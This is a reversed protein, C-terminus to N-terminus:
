AYGRTISAWWTRGDYFSHLMDIAVINNINTGNINHTTLAGAETTLASDGGLFKFNSPWTITRIDDQHYLIITMSTGPDPEAIPMAFTNFGTEGFKRDFIDVDTVNNNLIKHQITGQYLDIDMDPGAFTNNNHEPNDTPNSNVENPSQM